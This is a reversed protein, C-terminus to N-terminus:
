DSLEAKLAFRVAPIIPELSWGCEGMSAVVGREIPEIAALFAELCKLRLGGHIVSGGERYVNAINGRLKDDAIPTDLMCMEVFKARFTLRNSIIRGLTTQRLYRSAAPDRSSSTDAEMMGARCMVVLVKGIDDAAFGYDELFKVLEERSVFGRGVAPVIVKYAPTLYQMLHLTAMRSAVAGIGDLLTLPNPVSSRRGSYNLFSAKSVSTVLDDETFEFREGAMSSLVYQTAKTHGSRVFDCFLSLGRRVDGNSLCEFTVATHPNEFFADTCSQLFAQLHSFEFALNTGLRMSSLPVAKDRCLKVAFDIRKKLVNRVRPAPVHFVTDHYATLVGEGTRHEWFWQEQLSLVVACQLDAELQRAMLYARRQFTPTHHDANDIIVCLPRKLSHRLYHAVRKVFLPTDARLRAIEAALLDNANSSDGLSRRLRGLDQQFLVEIVERSSLDIGHGDLGNVIAQDDLRDFWDRLSQFVAASLSQEEDAISRFDVYCVAAKSTSPESEPRVTMFRKIFITKGVGRNGILLTLSGVESEFRDSLVQEFQEFARRSHINVADVDRRGLTDVLPQELDPDLLRCEAPLVYCERLFVPDDEIDTRHFVRDLLPEIASGVENKAIASDPDNYTALVSIARVVPEALEDFITGEQVASPSLLNYLEAFDVKTSFINPFVICRGDMTEIGDTRTGQFILLSSGNTLCAIPTGWKHCYTMCQVLHKQLSPNSTVLTRLKTSRTRPAKSIAFKESRRKAEVIMVPVALSFRYDLRDGTSGREREISTEPWGFSAKFLDDILKSRTDAENWTEADISHAVNRMSAFAAIHEDNPYSQPM